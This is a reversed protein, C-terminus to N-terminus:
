LVLLDLDVLGTTLSVQSLAPGPRCVYVDSDLQELDEEDPFTKCVHYRAASSTRRMGKETVLVDLPASLGLGEMVDLAGLYALDGVRRSVRPSLDGDERLGTAGRARRWYELASAGCIVLRQM